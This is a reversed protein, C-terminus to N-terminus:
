GGRHYGEWLCEGGAEEGRRKEGFVKGMGLSLRKLVRAPKEGLWGNGMILGCAAEVAEIIGGLRAERRQRPQQQPRKRLAFTNM